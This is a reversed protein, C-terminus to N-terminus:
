AMWHGDMRDQGSCGRVHQGAVNSADAETRPESERLGLFGATMSAGSLLASVHSNAYVTRAFPEM